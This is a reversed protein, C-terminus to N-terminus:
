AHTGSKNREIFWNRIPEAKDGQIEIAGNKVTGGSGFKAKLEKAIAELRQAGYTHLGAIVTVCKGARKELRIRPKPPGSTKKQAPPIRRGGLTGDWSSWNIKNNM